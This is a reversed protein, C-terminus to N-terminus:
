IYINIRNAVHNTSTRLLYKWQWTNHASNEIAFHMEAILVSKPMDIKPRLCKAFVTYHFSLCKESNRLPYMCNNYM